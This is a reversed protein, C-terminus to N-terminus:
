STQEALSQMETEQAQVRRRRSRRKALKAQLDQDVRAKAMDQQRNLEKVQWTPAFCNEDITLLLLSHPNLWQM